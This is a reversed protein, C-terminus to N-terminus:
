CMRSGQVRSNLPVLFSGDDTMNAIVMYRCVRRDPFLKMSNPEEVHPFQTANYFVEQWLQVSQEHQQETMVEDHANRLLIVGLFGEVRKVGQYHALFLQLYRLMIPNHPTVGIFAQFFGHQKSGKYVRPTCFSTNPFIANWMSMRAEIDVDFYLGGTEYLAAGRCMDGKYMGKREKQYFDLLPSDTGLVRALSALCEYDTYFRVEAGPHLSITHKVNMQLVAEEATLNTANLLNYSYTFTLINPIAHKWPSLVRSCFVLFQALVMIGVLAAVTNKKMTSYSLHREGTELSM